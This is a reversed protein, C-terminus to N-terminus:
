SVGLMRKADAVKKLIVPHNGYKDLDDNIVPAPHTKVIKKSTVAKKTKNM